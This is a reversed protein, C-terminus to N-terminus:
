EVRPELTIFFFFPHLLGFSVERLLPAGRCALGVEDGGTASGMGGAYGVKQAQPPRLARLRKEREREGRERAGRERRTAEREGGEREQDGRERAERERRSHDLGFDV